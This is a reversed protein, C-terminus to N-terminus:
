KKLHTRSTKARAQVASDSNAKAPRKEEWPFPLDPLSFDVKFTRYCTALAVLFGEPGTPYGKTQEIGSLYVQWEKLSRGKMKFLQRIAALHEAAPDLSFRLLIYGGPARKEIVGSQILRELLARSDGDVSGNALAAIAADPLFDKPILDMGLSVPALEQAAGIFKDDPLAGTKEAGTNLRRLYDIFVEPIAEPM